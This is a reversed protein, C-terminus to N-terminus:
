FAFLLAGSFHTLTGTDGSASSGGNGAWIEVYDSAALDIMDMVIVGINGSTSASFLLPGDKFRVGNKYIYCIHNTAATNANWNVTALFLYFGAVPATFRYNTTSDFNNGTDYDETDFQIKTPTGSGPMTFASNRYVSFKVPGTMVNANAVTNVQFRKTTPGSAQDGLLFDSTTPTVSGYSSIKGM